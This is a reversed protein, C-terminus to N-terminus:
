SGIQWIFLSSSSRVCLGYGGFSPARKEKEWSIWKALLNLAGDSAAYRGVCYGGSRFLDKRSKDSNQIAHGDKLKRKDNPKKIMRCRSGSKLHKKVERKTQLNKGDERYLSYRISMIQFAM